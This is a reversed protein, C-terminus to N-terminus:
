EICDWAEVIEPISQSLRYFSSRNQFGLYRSVRKKNGECFDIATNIEKAVAITVKCSGCVNKGLNNKTFCRKCYPHYM